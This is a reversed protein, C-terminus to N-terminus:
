FPIEEKDDIGPDEDDYQPVPECVERETHEQDMSEFTDSFIKQASRGYKSYLEAGPTPDDIVHFNDFSVSYYKDTGSTIQDIGLDFAVSYPPHDAYNYRLNTLLKESVIKLQTKQFNMIFPQWNEDALILNYSEHCLPHRPNGRGPKTHLSFLRMKEPDEDGWASAPCTTCNKSIPHKINASPSYFNDSKCVSRGVDKGFLVRSKSPVILKVNKLPGEVTKGGPLNFVGAVGGGVAQGIKIIRMKFDNSDLNTNGWFDQALVKPDVLDGM